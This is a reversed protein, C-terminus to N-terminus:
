EYGEFRCIFSDFGEKAIQKAKAQVSIDKHMEPLLRSVRNIASECGEQTLLANTIDVCNKSQNLIECLGSMKHEYSLAIFPVGQNIAFVISHYRAGIVYEAKRIIMQQVDSSYIDDIVILRSDNVTNAVERFFEVDNNISSYIQPLMVIKMKENHRRIERIIRIYFSIITEKSLKGKYAYHWLLINPVFVMYKDERLIAQLEEPIEITSEDLFATDITPTYPVGIQNAIKETERDRISIFSCYKLISYSYDRFRIQEKTEEPFPGFSRGFYALPKHVYRALELFYLHRWDQFGGLNIGGPACMVIDAWEYHKLAERTTPHIKWLFKLYPREKLLNENVYNYGRKSLIDIYQVQPLHMDYAQMSTPSYCNIYLVRISNKSDQALQRILAKHASEDGRNNLPQNILLIKM